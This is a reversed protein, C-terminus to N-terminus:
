LVTGLVQRYSVSEMDAREAESRECMVEYLTHSLPLPVVMPKAKQLGELTTINEVYPRQTLILGSTRRERKIGLFHTCMGLNITKFISSLNKKVALFSPKPGVVMIDDVYVLLYVPRKPDSSIFLCDSSRFRNFIITELTRALHQYWLKPAQRLGYLSKELRLVQGSAHPIDSSNLLVVYTAPSSKELCAYLFAGKVDLHDM